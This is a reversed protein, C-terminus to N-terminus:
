KLFRDLVDLIVILGACLTVSATIIILVLIADSNVNKVYWEADHWLTYLWSGGVAILLLATPVLQKPRM